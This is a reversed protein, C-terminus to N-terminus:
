TNLHEPHFRRSDPAQVGSRRTERLRGKWTFAILGLMFLMGASALGFYRTTTVTRDPPRNRAAQLYAYIRVVEEDTLPHTRFLGVMSPFNPTKLMSALETENFRRAADTLDPGIRGGGLFGVGSVSHCSICAPAGRALHDQGTFLRQGRPVDSPTPRRVLKGSQPIFTKKAKSLQEILALLQEIQDPALSQDPMEEPAFQNFLKAAAADGANKLAAPSLIFRVSWDRSRRELLGMLDPGKKNGGGINHCSYCQKEFM